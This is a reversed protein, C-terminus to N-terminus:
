RLVIILMTYMVDIFRTGRSMDWDENNLWGADTYEKVKKALAHLPVRKKCLTLLTEQVDISGSHLTGKRWRTREARQCVHFGIAHTCAM